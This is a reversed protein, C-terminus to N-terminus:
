KWILFTYINYIQSYFELIFSLQHFDYISMFCKYFIYGDVCTVLECTWLKMARFPDQFKELEEDLKM